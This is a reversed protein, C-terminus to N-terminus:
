PSYFEVELGTSFGAGGRGRLASLKVAEVIKEPPMKERLFKKGNSM